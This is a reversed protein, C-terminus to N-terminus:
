RLACGWILFDSTNVPRPFKAQTSTFRHALIPLEISITALQQEGPLQLNTRPPCALTQPKISPSFVPDRKTATSYLSVPTLPARPSRKPVGPMFCSPTSRTSCCAYGQPSSSTSGRNPPPFCIFCCPFLFGRRGKRGHWRFIATVREVAPIASSCDSPLGTSDQRCAFLVNKEWNVHWNSARLNGKARLRQKSALTGLRHRSAKLSYGM